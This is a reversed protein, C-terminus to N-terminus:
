GNQNEGENEQKSKSKRLNGAKYNQTTVLRPQGFVLTKLQM